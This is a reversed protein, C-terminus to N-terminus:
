RSLAREKGGAGCPVHAAVNPSDTIQYVETSSLRTASKLFHLICQNDYKEDGGSCGIRQIVYRLQLWITRRRLLCLLKIVVTAIEGETGRIKTDRLDM